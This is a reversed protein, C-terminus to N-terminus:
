EETNISEKLFLPIVCILAFWTVALIRYVFYNHELCHNKMISMWVFPYLSVFLYPICSFLRSKTVVFGVKFAFYILYVAIGVCIIAPLTRTPRGLVTRFVLFPSIATVGDTVGLRVRIQELVDDLIDHSYLLYDLIWKGAWMVAYGLVWYFAYKLLTKVTKWVGSPKHIILWFVSPIGLTVIPYTLFDLYAVVIGSFLFFFEYFSAMKTGKDFALIFNLQFLLVYLITSFQLNLSLYPAQFWFFVVTLPFLYVEMDRKGMQICILMLLFLQVFLNVWQIQPYTLFVLLSKLTVLYGHWYRGYETKPLDGGKIIQTISSRPDPDNQYYYNVLAAKYAPLDAENASIMAEELMISEAFTDLKSIQYSDILHPSAMKDIYGKYPKVHDFIREGPLMYVLTLLLYGVLISGLCCVATQLAKKM